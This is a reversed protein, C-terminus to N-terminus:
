TLLQLKLEHLLEVMSCFNIIYGIRDTCVSILWLLCNNRNFHVISSYSRLCEYHVSPRCSTNLHNRSASSVGCEWWFKMVVTQGM